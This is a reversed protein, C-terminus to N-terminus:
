FEAVSLRCNFDFSLFAHPCYFGMKINPLHNLSAPLRTWLCAPLCASLCFYDILCNSLHGTSHGCTMYLTSTTLCAGCAPTRSDSSVFRSGKICLVDASVCVCVCVCVSLCVASHHTCLLGAAISVIKKGTLSACVEQVALNADWSRWALVVGSRTLCCSHAAGAAIAVAHPRSIETQGKHFAIDGLAGARAVDRAGVCVARAIVPLLSKPQLQQGHQLTTFACSPIILGFLSCHLVLQRLMLQWVVVPSLKRVCVRVLIHQPCHQSCHVQSLSTKSVLGHGADSVLTGSLWFRFTYGRCSVNLEHSVPFCSPMFCCHLLHCLGCTSKCTEGALQVRRPTVVRHGWTYIDGESSMVVMHRKAAAVAVLRKGQVWRVRKDFCACM